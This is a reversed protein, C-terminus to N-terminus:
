AALQLLYILCIITKKRGNCYVPMNVLRIIFLCFKEGGIKKDPWGVLKESHPFGDIVRRKIYTPIKIWNSRELKPHIPIKIKIVL